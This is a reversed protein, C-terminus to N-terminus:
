QWRVTALSQSAPQREFLISQRWARVPQSGKLFVARAGLESQSAQWTAKQRCAVSAQESRRQVGRSGAQRVRPAVSRRGVSRVGQLGGLQVFVVQLRVQSAPQALLQQRHREGASLRAAEAELEAWARKYGRCLEDVELERGKQRLQKRFERAAAQAEESLLVGQLSATPAAQSQAKQAAVTRDTQALQSAAEAQRCPSLATGDGRYGRPRYRGRGPSMFAFIIICVHLLSSILAM